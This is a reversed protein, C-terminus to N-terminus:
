MVNVGCPILTSCSILTMFLKFLHCDGACEVHWRGTSTAVYLKLVCHSPFAFLVVTNRPSCLTTGRQQPSLLPAPLCALRGCFSMESDETCLLGNLHCIHPPQNRTSLWDEETPLSPPRSGFTSAKEKNKTPMTFIRGFNQKEDSKMRDSLMDDLRRDGKRGTGDYLVFISACQSHLSAGAIDSVNVNGRHDNFRFQSFSYGIQSAKTVAYQLTHAQSCLPMEATRSHNQRRHTQEGKKQRRTEENRDLLRKRVIM